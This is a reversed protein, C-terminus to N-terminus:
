ILEVSKEGLLYNPARRHIIVWRSHMGRLGSIQTTKFGCYTKLLSEMSQYSNHHPFVCFHTAESLVVKTKTYDTALHSIVIGDISAHRGQIGIDKILNLVISFLAPPLNEYDDFVVLSKEFEEVKPPDKVFTDLDLRKIFKLKDLTEDKALKSILFVHRKPYLKRYSEILMSAVYSKGSESAGTIYYFFHKDKNLVPVFVEEGHLQFQKKADEKEKVMKYVEKLKDDVGEDEDTDSGGNYMREVLKFMRQRERSPFVKFEKEYDSYYLEREEKQDTNKDTWKVIAGNRKGNKVRAIYGTTLNKDFTLNFFM